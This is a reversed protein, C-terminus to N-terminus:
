VEDKEGETSITIEGVCTQTFSAMRTLSELLPKVSGERLKTEDFEIIIKM